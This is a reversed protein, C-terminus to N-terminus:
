DALTVEIFSVVRSQLKNKPAKVVIIFEQNAQPPMNIVLTKQLEKSSPNEIYWCNHELESNKILSGDKYSFPLEDRNYPGFIDDCKFHPSRSITL